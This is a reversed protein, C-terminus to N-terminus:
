NKFIDDDFYKNILTNRLEEEERIKTIMREPYENVIVRALDYILCKKLNFFKMASEYDGSNIWDDIDNLKNDYLKLIEFKKVLANYEEQLKNIDSKEKLYSEKLSCHIYEKVFNISLTEKEKSVKKCFKCYYEDM